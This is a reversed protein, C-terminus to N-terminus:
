PAAVAVAIVTKPFLVDAMDWTWKDITRHGCGKLFDSVAIGLDSPNIDGLMLLKKIIEPEVEDCFNDYETAALIINDKIAAVVIDSNSVPTETKEILDVFFNIKNEELFAMATDRVALMISTNQAPVISFFECIQPIYMFQSTETNEYWSFNDELNTKGEMIVTKIAKIGADVFEVKADIMLIDGIKQCREFEEKIAATSFTFRDKVLDSLYSTFRSKYYDLFDQESADPDADLVTMMYMPALQYLSSKIANDMPM